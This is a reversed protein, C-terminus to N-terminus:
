RVRHMAYGEEDFTYYRKFNTRRCFNEFNEQNIEMGYFQLRRRYASLERFSDLGYMNDIASFVAPNVYFDNEIAFGIIFHPLLGCRIAMEDQNPFVSVKCYPLGTHKITRSDNIDVYEIIRRWASNKGIIKPVWGFIILDHAFRDAVNANTTTSILSSVDRYERDNITHAVALYYLNVKRKDEPELKEYAEVLVAENKIRAFFEDNKECFSIIRKARNGGSNVGDEIYKKLSRCINLVNENSTDDPDFGGNEEWCIRGKEGTMFLCNALLDPTHSDANFQRMMNRNSEGRLIFRSNLSGSLLNYFEWLKIIEDHTLESGDGRLLRYDTISFKM